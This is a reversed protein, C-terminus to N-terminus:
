TRSVTSQVSEPHLFMLIKQDFVTYAVYKLLNSSNMYDSTLAELNPVQLPLLNFHLRVTVHFTPKTQTGL